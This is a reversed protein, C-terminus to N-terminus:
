ISHFLRVALVPLFSGSWIYPSYPPNLIKPTNEVDALFCGSYYLLTFFLAFAVIPFFAYEFHWIASIYWNWCSGPKVPDQSNAATPM